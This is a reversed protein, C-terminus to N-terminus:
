KCRGVGAGRVFGQTRVPLRRKSHSMKLMVNLSHGRFTLASLPILIVTQTKFFTMFPLLTHSLTTNVYAHAKRMLDQFVYVLFLFFVCTNLLLTIEAFVRKCIIPKTSITSIGNRSHATRKQMMAFVCLIIHPVTGPAHPDRHM